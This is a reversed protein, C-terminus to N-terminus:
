EYRLSDVPNGRAAKITQVSVTLVATILALGAAGVFMWINMKIRYAFNQLWRNMAFYAIPWALLNAIVVQKVLNKNLLILIGKVSAGLIKRVGIEKTRQGVTFSALAMLGLCAIFVALGAFATIVRGAQIENTYLSDFQDDFFTYEFPQNNTFENWRSELIRLTEQLNGPKSRISLLVGPRRGRLIVAMPGIKTYLSEMHFDRMIGIIEMPRRNLGVLVLREELPNKIGLSRVATENLVVATTDTSRERDFFRGDIMELGYTNKFEYDTTITILTNNQQSGEGEKQFVKVELLMQPLSDTYTVHLINPNQMMRNKFAEQRGGLKEARQVVIVHEREFGLDLSRVYRLQSYIVITGVLLIISACFQFVVLISRFARGGGGPQVNGKLVSVPKFSALMLAPYSGAAAGLGVAGMFILMLHYGNQFYAPAINSGVLRNFAPLVLEVLLLALVVAALSLFISETLFQRILQGRSSGVVKRVGVEGARQSSRATTLNIFNICAVILILVAIASFIIVITFNGQPDLENGWASHLHVDLLPQIMFGIYNGNELFEEYSVAMIKEIIPAMYKGSFEPLKSRLNEPSTNEHLKFYTFVATDYFDKDKSKPLSSFSALFDFYFHSPQTWGESVGTVRYLSGDELVLMKGMPDKKGFYKQAAKTTLIVSNPDKLAESPDGMILPITLVDFLSADAWLFRAERFRKEEYRVFVDGGRSQRAFVRAASKVEPFDRVLVDALPCPGLAADFQNSGVHFKLGARYILDVDEHFRDYKLESGVFLAILLCSSIGITLGAINIFAHGTNKRFNRWAVIFYNHFM